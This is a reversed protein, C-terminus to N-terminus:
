RHDCAMCVGGWAVDYGGVFWRWRSVCAMSNGSVHQAMDVWMGCWIIEAWVNCWRWECATGDVGVIGAIDKWVGHWRWRCAMGDGGVFRVVRFAIVGERQAMEVWM